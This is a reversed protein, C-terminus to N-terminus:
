FKPDEDGAAAPDTIKVTTGDRDREIALGYVDDTVETTTEGVDTRATGGLGADTTQAAENAMAKRKTGAAKTAAVVAAAEADAAAKRADEAAKAIADLGTQSQAATAAGGTNTITGNDAVVVVCNVRSAAPCSFDVNGANETEGPAINYTNPTPGYGEAYTIAVDHMEAMAIRDLADDSSAVTAAGGMSMVVTRTGTTGNDLTVTMTTVSVNCAVPGAPCTFKADGVELYKGAEILYDGAPITNHESPLDTVDVDHSVAALRDTEAKADIAAQLGTTVSDAVMVTAMGGTSTISGDDAQAVTCADGGAPCTFTVYGTTHTDGAEITEAEALDIEPVTFQVGSPVVLADPLTIAHVTPPPPPVAMATVMAGTSTATGDDAIKLTCANGGAPCTFTIGGRDESAGAAIEVTEAATGDALMNDGLDVDFAMPPTVPVRSSGGGGGCATLVFILLIPFLISSSKM